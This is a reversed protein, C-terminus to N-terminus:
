SARVESAEDRDRAMRAGLRAAERMFAEHDADDVEDAEEIRRDFALGLLTLAVAAAYAGPEQSGMGGATASVTLGLGAGLALLGAFDRGLSPGRTQLAAAVGLCLVALVAHSAALLLTASGAALAAGVGHFGAWAAMAFTSFVRILAM